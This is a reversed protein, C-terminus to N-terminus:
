SNRKKRFKSRFKTNESTVPKPLTIKTRSAYSKVGTYVECAIKENKGTIGITKTLEYFGSGGFGGGSMLNAALSFLLSQNRLLLIENDHSLNAIQIKGQEDVKKTASLAKQVRLNMEENIIVMREVLKNDTAVKSALVAYQAKLESLQEGLGLNEGLADLIAHQRNQQEILFPWWGSKPDNKESKSLEAMVQKNMRRADALQSQYQQKYPNRNDAAIEFFVTEAWKFPNLGKFPGDTNLNLKKDGARQYGTLANMNGAQINQKVNIGYFQWAGYITLAGINDPGKIAKSIYQIGLNKKGGIDRLYYHVLGYAFLADAKIQKKNKNFGTKMDGIARIAALDDISKMRLFRNFLTEIEKTEFAGNFTNLSSVYPDDSSSPMSNLIKIIESRKKGFDNEVLAVNAKPLNKITQPISPECMQEALKKNSNTGSMSQGTTNMSTSGKNQNLGKLMGGLPNSGSNNQPINLKGGVDKQIKDTLAKLDFANANKSIALVLFIYFFNKLFKFM